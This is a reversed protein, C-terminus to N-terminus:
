RYEKYSNQKKHSLNEEKNEGDKNNKEGEKYVMERLEDQMKLFSNDKESENYNISVSSPSPLLITDEDGYILKSIKNSIRDIVTDNKIMGIINLLEKNDWKKEGYEDKLAQTVYSLDLDSRRKNYNYNEIDIGYEKSLYEELGDEKLNKNYIESVARVCSINHLGFKNKLAEYSNIKRKVEDLYESKVKKNESYKKCLLRRTGYKYNEIIKGVNFNCKDLYEDINIRSLNKFVKKSMVSEMAFFCNDLLGNMAINLNEIDENSYDKFNKKQEYKISHIMDAYFSIKWMVLEYDEKNKFKKSVVRDFEEQGKDQIKLFKKESMGFATHLMTGIFIMNGYGDLDLTGTYSNSTERDSQVLRSAKMETCIEDLGVGYFGSKDASHNLEHFFTGLIKERKKNKLYVTIAKRRPNYYGLCSGSSRKLKITDLNQFVRNAKNEIEEDTLEFEYKFRSFYENLIPWIGQLYGKEEYISDFNLKEYEKYEM